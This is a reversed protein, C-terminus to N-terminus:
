SLSKKSYKRAEAELEQKLARRRSYTKRLAESLEDARKNGNPSIKRMRSLYSSAEAYVARGKNNELYDQILEAYIELLQAGQNNKLHPEYKKVLELSLDPQFTLWDLLEHHMGEWTYLFPLRSQGYRSQQLEAILGQVAEDWEEPPTAAKFKEYYAKGSQGTIVHNIFLWRSYEAQRAKDDKLEAIELLFDRWNYRPLFYDDRIKKKIADETLKQATDYVGAEMLDKIYRMRVEGSVAYEMLLDTARDPKRLKPVLRCLLRYFHEKFPGTQGHAERSYLSLVKDAEEHTEVMSILEELLNLAAKISNTRKTVLLKELSDHLETFLQVRFEPLRQVNQLQEKLYIILGSTLELYEQLAPVGFSHFRFPLEHGKSVFELLAFCIDVSKAYNEKKILSVAEELLYTVINDTEEELVMEARTMDGNDVYLGSYIRELYFAKGSTGAYESYDLLLQNLMGQNKTAVDRVFTKLEEHSIKSLITDLQEQDRPAVQLGASVEQMIEELQDRLEFLVAATHKCVNVGVFPCDCFTEIIDGEPGSLDIEVTYIEEDRDAVSAMFCYDNNIRDLRLVYGAQWYEKGQKLNRDSVFDEFNLISFDHLFM